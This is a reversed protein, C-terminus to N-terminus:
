ECRYFPQLPYYGWFLRLVYFKFPISSLLFVTRSEDDHEGTAEIGVHVTLPMSHVIVIRVLNSADEM